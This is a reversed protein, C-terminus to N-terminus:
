AFAENIGDAVALRVLQHIRGTHEEAAPRMYPQAKIGNRRMSRTVLFAIREAEKDGAPRLKLKVWEILGNATGPQRALPGQVGYEVAAAYNVHPAVRYHMEGVRSERISNTLNSFAKPAKDMAARAVEGASRSLAADIRREVVGPMRQMAAIALKDNVRIEIKM